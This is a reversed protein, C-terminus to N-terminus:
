SAYRHQLRQSTFGAVAGIAGAAVLTLIGTLPNDPHLAFFAILGLFWTLTNGLITTARLGVAVLALLFVSIPLAVAGVVPSLWAVIFTGATALLVGAWLSIISYVGQRTSAPRTFWAVWGIFMAWAPLGALQSLFAAAAAVVGAIVTFRIFRSDTKVNGPTTAHSTM